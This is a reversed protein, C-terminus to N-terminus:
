PSLDRIRTMGGMTGIYVTRGDPGLTIPAGFDTYTLGAGTPTRFVTQGTAVDLATLHWAYGGSPLREYTYLYVLGNALSIKPM